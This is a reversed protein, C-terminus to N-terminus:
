ISRSGADAAAARVAAALVVAVAAEAAGVAAAGVARPARAARGQGPTPLNPTLNENFRVSVSNSTSLTTASNRFNSVAVGPVNATPIYQLLALSSPDMDSMPIQNNAYPLGTHPNVLQITSGSFDGNRMAETPVTLFQDQLNTSHSGSYNLQFSTRRKTDEYVGPIRVPGGFTAGFNNGAFPLPPAAQIIGNRPQLPTSDLGSGNM